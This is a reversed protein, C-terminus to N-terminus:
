NLHHPCSIPVSTVTFVTVFNHKIDIIWVLLRYLPKPITWTSIIETSLSIIWPTLFSCWHLWIGWIRHIYSRYSCQVMLYDRYSFIFVRSLCNGGKTVFVSCLIVKMELRTQINKVGGRFRPHTIIESCNQLLFHKDAFCTLFSCTLPWARM